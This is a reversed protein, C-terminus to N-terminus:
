SRSCGCSERLVLEVPLRRVIAPGDPDAIREVLIDVVARGMAQMPQRVTTLTPRVARGLLIGDFGTVAVQEPVRVGHDALGAMLNLATEDTACVFAEPLDRDALVGAIANGTEYEDVTLQSLPKRPVRLGAARLAAQFGAFREQADFTILSGAFLLDRLGHEVILHETIAKMGGRNDVAVTNLGEHQPAETLGVVPIRHSIRELMDAPVTHPFVALGDVRGVIDTVVTVSDARSGGAILLAYGRRWCELEVGRQVEDVYLPFRLHDDDNDNRVVVVDDGFRKPDVAESKSLPESRFYDFSYLGLAGTHGHALGRASGSPVYNLENAAALVIQRTEEKVKHPRRFTMSVTAISVGAREAVDYVTAAKAM